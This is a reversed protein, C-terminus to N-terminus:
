AELQDVNDAYVRIGCHEADHREISGAPYTTPDVWFVPGGDKDTESFIKELRAGAPVDLTIGSGFKHTFATKVKCAYKIPM